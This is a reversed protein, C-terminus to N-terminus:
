TDDGDARIYVEKFQQEEDEGEGEGRMRGSRRGSRRRRMRMGTRLRMRLRMRMSLRIRTCLQTTKAHVVSDSKAHVVSASEGLCGSQLLKILLKLHAPVDSLREKRFDCIVALTQPLALSAIIGPAGHKM